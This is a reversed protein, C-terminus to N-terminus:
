GNVTVGARDIIQSWKQYDGVVVKSAEARSVNAPELGAGTLTKQTAPDSNAESMAEALLSIAQEPTGQPAFLGFWSYVEFDGGFVEAVTPVDPFDKHRQRGTVAYAKLKGSQIHQALFSTNDFVTDIVGGLLDILAPAGGRYPISLMQIGTLEKFYESALHALTGNGGNGMDLPTNKAYAVLERINNPELSAKGALIMSGRTSLGIPVFSTEPSFKANAYLAPAVALSSTGGWLLTYGDAASQAVQTTGLIGGAGPKNEVVVPQGLAVSMARAIVRASADTPGGPAFPVVLTIPGSPFKGQAFVSPLVLQSAAAAGLVSLFRRRTTISIKHM